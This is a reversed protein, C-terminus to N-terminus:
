KYEGIKIAEAISNITKETTTSEDIDIWVGDSKNKFWTIQRKAFRRTNRKLLDISEDLSSEGKLYSIIEKYGIGNMSVLDEKYGLDLINKVEEVLGKQAMNDVRKEINEYLIKRDRNLIFFHTKYAEERKQEEQNHQSIKKGTEKYYELARVVKKVNNEHIYLTAEPDVEKLMNYLLKKDEALAYLSERYATDKENVDTNTFNTDYILANIYFGTGGVLIPMKGRSHIDDICSKAMDKFLAVSFDEDPYLVDILFHPVGKMSEKSAKATGINMYKYVQMSDASIIEGNIKLALDIAIDTKGCATAGAIVVLPKKM